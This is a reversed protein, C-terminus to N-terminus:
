YTDEGSRQRDFGLERRQTQQQEQRCRQEQEQGPEREQRCRQEQVQEPVQELRKQQALGLVRREPKLHELTPPELLRWHERQEQQKASRQGGAVLVWWRQEPQTKRRREWRQEQELQERELWERSWRRQELKSKPEWPQSEQGPQQSM